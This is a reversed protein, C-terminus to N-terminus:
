GKLATVLARVGEVLAAVTAGSLGVLKLRGASGRKYVIEAADNAINKAMQPIATEIAKIRAAHDPCLRSIEDLKRFLVGNTDRISQELSAVSTTLSGLREAVAIDREDIETM